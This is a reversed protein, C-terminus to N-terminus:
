KGAKERAELEAKALKRLPSDAPAEALVQRFMARADESQQLILFRKGFVYASHTRLDPELSKEVGSWGLFGTTGKWTLFLKLMQEKRLKHDRLADCVALSEQWLVADEDARPALAFCGQASLSQEM